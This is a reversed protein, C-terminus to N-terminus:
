QVGAQSRRDHGPRGPIECHIGGGGPRRGGCRHCDVPRDSPGRRCLVGDRGTAYTVTDAEATGWRSFSLGAIDELASLDPIQGIAPILQDADIEYESGPIPIPRRRGSSDPEGLEMRICRIGVVHGEETLVEQPASLYTIKVRRRQRSERKRGHLCKLAPGDISLTSRRLGWASPQRPAVDIAVNGGGIIAVKKGVKARGPLTSNGCSTWERGCARSRKELSEWNM